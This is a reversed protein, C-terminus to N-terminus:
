AKRAAFHGRDVKEFRADKGKKAIERIIASYLTAQPTLGSTSWLKQAIAQEVIAKCAMPKKSKALIQAAADLIGTRKKTKGTAGTRGRKAGSAAASAKGGTTAKPKRKAATAATKARTGVQSTAAKPGTARSRRKRTTKKTPNPAAM